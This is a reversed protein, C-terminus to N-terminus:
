KSSLGGNDRRRAYKQPSYVDYVQIDVASSELDYIVEKVEEHLTFNMADVVYAELEAFSSFQM